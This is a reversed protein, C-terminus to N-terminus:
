GGDRTLYGLTHVLTAVLRRHASGHLGACPMIRRRPGNAPMGLVVPLVMLGAGHASAMLFSWLTLDGFGVQMGVWHFHRSRVILRYVGLAVLAAAVAIKLYQLPVVIRM